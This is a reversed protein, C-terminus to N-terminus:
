KRAENIPAAYATLLPPNRDPEALWVQRDRFYELFPGDQQPGMERAWVVKSGDIDAANFVWEDQTNHGPAYRVLVLQRGPMGALSRQMAARAEGFHASRDALTASFSDRGSWVFLTVVVAALAPGVPRRWAGLRSLSQVSRLYFVGAFAAAYHPFVGVLPAVSAVGAATLAAGAREATTKMAFPWLLLPVMVLWSGFFFSVLTYERGFFQVVPHTRSERWIEVPWGTYFDRMVAHRYVPEPTLPLLLFPSAAVYQRDHAQYPLTLAHGTVRFDVYALAAISVALVAFAPLAIRRVAATTLSRRNKHLLWGLTVVSVLGIVAADYPRSHMLIAIGLAWIASYASAAHHYERKLAMRAIAGLALAGGIAPIAGGEFSNMWYSLVGIRFTFLLAGLLAWEASIWSQLMWCVAACMLACTLLVGAWQGIQSQPDFLKQGLALALGQLPQYKSAYTPQQLEQFTEFHQWFPHPSNALRGHGYTDAALLYSFEDHIIPNPVGLHTSLALRLAIALLFIAVCALTERRAFASYAHFARLVATSKASAEM